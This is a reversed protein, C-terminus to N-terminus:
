LAIATKGDQRRAMEGIEAETASKEYTHQSHVLTVGSM